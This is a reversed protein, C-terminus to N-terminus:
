RFGTVENNDGEKTIIAALAGRGDGKGGDLYIQRKYTDEERKTFRRWRAREETAWKMMGGQIEILMRGVIWGEKRGRRKNPPSETNTDRYVGYISLELLSGALSKVIGQMDERAM